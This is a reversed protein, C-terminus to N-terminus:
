YLNDKEDQEMIDIIDAKQKCKQDTLFDDIDIQSSKGIPFLKMEYKVVEEILKNLEEYEATNSKAHFIIDIRALKEEYEKKTQIM